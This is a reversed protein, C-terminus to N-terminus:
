VALDGRSFHLTLFPGMAYDQSIILVMRIWLWHSMTISRPRLPSQATAPPGPVLSPQM